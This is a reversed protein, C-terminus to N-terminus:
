GGQKLYNLCQRGKMPGERYNKMYVKELKRRESNERVRVYKDTGRQCKWWGM